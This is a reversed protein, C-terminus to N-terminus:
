SLHDCINTVVQRDSLGAIARAAYVVGSPGIRLPQVLDLWNHWDGATREPVEEPLLAITVGRAQPM